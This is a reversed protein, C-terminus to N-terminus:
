TIQPPSTVFHSLWKNVYGGHTKFPIMHDQGSSRVGGLHFFLTGADYLTQNSICLTCRQIHRVCVRVCVRESEREWDAQMACRQVASPHKDKKGVHCLVPFNFFANTLMAGSSGRAPGGRHELMRKGVKGPKGWPGVPVLLSYILTDWPNRHIGKPYELNGSCLVPFHFFANKLMAGSSGRAPGGRHELM